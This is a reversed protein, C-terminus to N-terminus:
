MQSKLHLVRRQNTNASYIPSLTHEKLISRLYQMEEQTYKYIDFKHPNKAKLPGKAM